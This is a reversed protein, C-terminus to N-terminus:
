PKSWYDPIRKAESYNDLIGNEWTHIHLVAHDPDTKADSMYRAYNPSGPQSGGVILAQKAHELMFTINQFSSKWANTSYFGEDIVVFDPLARGLVGVKLGFFSISSLVAKNFCSINQKQYQLTSTPYSIYWCSDGNYSHYATALSALFSKGMQRGGRLHIVSPKGESPFFRDDRKLLEGYQFESLGTRNKFVQDNNKKSLPFGSMIKYLFSHTPYLHDLFVDRKSFRYLTM